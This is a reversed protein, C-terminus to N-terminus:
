TFYVHARVSMLSLSFFLSFIVKNNLVPKNGGNSNDVPGAHVVSLAIGIAMLLQIKAAVM